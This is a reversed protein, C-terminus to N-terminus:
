GVAAAATLIVDAVAQPQSIMVAHSADVETITAGAREAMGRVAAVGIVLDATAVVAWAPLTKWAPVGFPEGLTLSSLPRQTVAMIKATEEPVDACFVAPFRARDLTFEDHAETSGADIVPTPRLIQTLETPPYGELIGLGTEGEDPTFGAVYVLGVANPVKSGAQTIVAGGYSHGVLLVPGPIASAVSAIYNGDVSVGRLPNALAIVNYGEAELIPIVGAWGSSNDWAGHVLAITLPADTTPTAQIMLDGGLTKSSRSSANANQASLGAGALAAVAGAGAMRGIASRRNLRGDLVGGTSQDERQESM